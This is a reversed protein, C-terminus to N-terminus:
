EEKLYYELTYDEDKLTVGDPVDRESLSLIYFSLATDENGAGLGYTETQLDYHAEVHTDCTGTPVFGTKFVGYATRDGRLEEHCADWPVLGSDECFPLTVIGKPKEFTRPSEGEGQMLHGHIAHMVTDWADLHTHNGAPLPTNDDFGIHIGAVAYPTYGVFWKDQDGGSTGTKGATDVIEKLTIRRATGGEVVEGLMQTMIYATDESWVRKQERETTLIPEGKRDYVALYSRPTCLIGGNAFPAFAATMEQVTTGKTLQGLALPAAALDTKNETGRILGTFGLRNKLYEYAKEKGLMNLVQVSVTNKSKAIAKHVSVRGDYVSPSNHPWLGLSTEQPMDEFVTAYTILNEELAPGYVSLPKLASGPPYYAQTARNLLRSGTKKGVGGIVGLLDGTTPDMVVMAANSVQGGVTPMHSTDQFYTEMEKQVRPDMLTYIELGGRYLMTTAASPSIHLTTQLDRIVDSTVLETYWNHESDTYVPDTLNLVVELTQAEESEKPTLFGCEAMATLVLNRRRQNEKPHSVPEYRAPANTIAALTACEEVTLDQPEKGFYYRAASRVGVCRNGLPVINLYYTLIEDKTYEKELRIARIIEKLKRAASVEAEGHVNKVLQQTITSGGFTDRFRFLYNLVAYATRKWDVGHHTYFKRDEIAIFAERLTDPIEKTDAWVMNEDGFLLDAEVPRYNELTLDERAVGEDPVYLRTTRSGRMSEMVEMDVDVDLRMAVVGVYVGGALLSACLVGVTIAFLLNWWRRGKKKNKM